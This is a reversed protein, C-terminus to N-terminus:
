KNVLSGQEWRCSRLDVSIESVPFIWFIKEANEATNWSMEPLKPNLPELRTRGDSSRHLRALFVSQPNRTKGVVIDGDEAYDSGSVLLRSGLPLAPCFEPDDLLLGFSFKTCENAFAVAAAQNQRVFSAPSQMTIDFDNMRSLPIVPVNKVQNRDAMPVPTDSPFSIAPDHVTVPKVPAPMFKRLVRRVRKEWITGNINRTKGNLWFLVTSHAVGIEKAFQSTNGYHDVAKRIAELIDPNLKM